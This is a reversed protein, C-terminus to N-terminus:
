RSRERRRRPDAQLLKPRRKREEGRGGSWERKGEIGWTRRWVMQRSV